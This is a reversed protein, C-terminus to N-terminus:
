DSVVLRFNPLIKKKGPMVPVLPPRQETNYHLRVSLTCHLSMLALSLGSDTEVRRDNENNAVVRRVSSEVM